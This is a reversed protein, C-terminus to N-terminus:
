IFQMHAMLSKSGHQSSVPLLSDILDILNLSDIKDAFLGLHGLQKISFDESSLNEM